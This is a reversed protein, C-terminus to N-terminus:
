TGATGQTQRQGSPHRRGDRSTWGTTDSEAAVESVDWRISRVGPQEVGGQEVVGDHYGRASGEDEFVLIAHGDMTWVGHVFGPFTVESSTLLPVQDRLDEVIKPDIDWVGVVAWM